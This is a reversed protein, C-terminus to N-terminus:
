REIIVKGEKNVIGEVMKNNSSLRVKVKEGERGESYAVGMTEVEINKIKVVVYVSDGRKFCPKGEFMNALLISGPAIARRAIKNEIDVPDLIVDDPLFSIDKREKKIANLDPAAGKKIGTETVVCETTVKVFFQIPEIRYFQDNIYIEVPIILNGKFRINSNEKVKLLVKGETLKMNERAKGATIEVDEKPWKIHEMIYNEATKLVDQGEIETEKTFVAIEDPGEIVAAQYIRKVKDGVLEKSIIVKEGPIAARKIYLVKLKEERDKDFGYIFAIDDLYIKDKAIYIEKDKLAVTPTNISVAAVNEAFIVLLVTIIWYKM